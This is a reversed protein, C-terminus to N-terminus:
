LLAVGVYASRVHAQAEANEGERGRVPVPAQGPAPEPWLAPRPLSAPDAPRGSEGSDLDM